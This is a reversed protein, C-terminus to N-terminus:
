SMLLDVTSIVMSAFVTSVLSGLRSASRLLSLNKSTAFYGVIVKLDFFISCTEAPLSFIVPSRVMRPTVLSAASSTSPGVGGTFYGHHLVRTAAWAVVFKFRWSQLWFHFALLP